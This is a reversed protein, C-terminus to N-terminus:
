AFITFLQFMCKREREQWLGGTGLVAVILETGPAALVGAAAEVGGKGARRMACFAADAVFAKHQTSVATDGHGLTAAHVPVAVVWCALGEVWSVLAVHLANALRASSEGALFERTAGVFLAPHHVADSFAM